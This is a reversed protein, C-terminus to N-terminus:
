RSLRMDLADIAKSLTNPNRQAVGNVLWMSYILAHGTAASRADSLAAALLWEGLRVIRHCCHQGDASAQGTAGKAPTWFDATQWEATHCTCSCCASEM